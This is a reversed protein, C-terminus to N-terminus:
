VIREYTLNGDFVVDNEAWNTPSNDDVWDAAGDVRFRIKESGVVVAHITSHQSPTSDYTIGSGIICERTSHLAEAAPYPLDCEYFGDGASVGSTGFGIRLQVHVLSGMAVVRSFMDAGTGMGPSTTTATLTPSWDTDHPGWSALDEFTGDGQNVRLRKTSRIAILQGEENVGAVASAANGDAFQVVVQDQILENFASASVAEFSVWQKWGAM